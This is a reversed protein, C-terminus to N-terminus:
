VLTQTVIFNEQLMAPGAVTLLSAPMAGVVPANEPGSYLQLGTTDVLLNGFSDELVFGGGSNINIFEASGRFFPAGDTQYTLDDFLFWVVGVEFDDPVPHQPLIFTLVTGSTQGIMTFLVKQAVGFSFTNDTVLRVDSIGLIGQAQTQQPNYINTNTGTVIIGSIVVAIPYAGNLFQSQSSGISGNANLWVFTISNPPVPYVQGQYVKGNISGPSIYFGLGANLQGEYWNPAFGIVLDAM